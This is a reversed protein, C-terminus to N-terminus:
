TSLRNNIYRILWGLVPVHQYLMAGLDFFDEHYYIRDTFRILTVGRIEIPKGGKLKKHSFTMNWVITATHNAIQEDLYTFSMGSSSAYLSRLYNKVGLRGHIAHVPDRFEVDQTYIRDINDLAAVGPHRYFEKFDNLLAARLNESVSNMDTAM